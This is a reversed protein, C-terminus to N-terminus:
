RRTSKSRLANIEIRKRHTHASSESKFGEQEGNDRQLHPIETKEEHKEEKDKCRQSHLQKTVQTLFCAAHAPLGSLSKCVSGTLGHM